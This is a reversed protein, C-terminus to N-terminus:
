ALLADYAARLRGISAHSPMPTGDLLSVPLVGAVSGTVFVGASKQLQALEINRRAVPLELQAALELVVSRTVGHLAGTEDPPTCLTDREIWFINGSATEAVHGATNLLLAEEGGQDEAEARAMIQTLRSAIKFPAFPDAAAIRMSATVLRVSAPPNPCPHLTMVFGPNNAGRPSYGRAGPGRSLMLRLVADPLQNVEILKAALRALEAREFPMRIRLFKAGRELRDLHQEWRFPQGRRVRMTEFLGDGYLFGRDFVSVMAREAPVFEGNVFVTM